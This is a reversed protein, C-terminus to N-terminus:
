ATASSATGEGQVRIQVSSGAAPSQIPQPRVSSSIAWHAVAEGPRWRRITASAAARRAAMFARQDAWTGSWCSM